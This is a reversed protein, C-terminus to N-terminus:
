PQVPTKRWPGLRLGLAVSTGYAIMAAAVVWLAADPTLQDQRDLLTFGGAVVALRLLAGAVPFRLTELGQSVFYLCLGLAFFGYFPGVRGLTKAAAAAIEPSDTFLGTWLWPWVSVVLGIAGALAAASFASLWGMRIADARRGAGLLTGTAVMGAGGIGFIVPVILLELRMGIGYGALWEAGMNGFVATAILSYAITMVTQSGALAGAGLVRLGGTLHQWGQLSIRVARERGYWVGLVYLQGITYAGLAAGGAGALGFPSGFFMQLVILLFHSVVIILTTVAPRLMDGTGRLAGTIMNAMWVIAIGPFLVWCYRMAMDLVEGKGGMASFLIPGFGLVLLANVCGLGISILMATRLVGNARDIDGSGMARAMAGSVAGGMAGASFMMTAMFVPFVLAVGALATPGITGAYWGETVLMLSQLISAALNPIALRALTRLPHDTLIRLHANM